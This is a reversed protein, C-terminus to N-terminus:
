AEDEKNKDHGVHEPMVKEYLLVGDGLAVTPLPSM